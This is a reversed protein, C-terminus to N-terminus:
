IQLAHLQSTYSNKVKAHRPRYIGETECDLLLCVWEVWISNFIKNKENGNMSSLNFQVFEISTSFHKAKKQVVEKYLYSLRDGVM